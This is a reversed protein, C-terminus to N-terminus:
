TLSQPADSLGQSDHATPPAPEQCANGVKGLLAYRDCRSLDADLDGTSGPFLVVTEDFGAAAALVVMAEPFLPHRHTPDLWFLKASTLNHPNVTEMLLLGGPQLVRRAHSLLRPLATPDIHEIVQVSVIADVTADAQEVLYDLLDAQVVSLGQRRARELMGADSDVGRAPIGHQALMALLEGRGCGLELVNHRDRLYPLYETLLYSVRESTGRFADEFTVYIQDMHSTKGKDHRYGMVVRGSPAMLRLGGPLACFPRRSWQEELSPQDHPSRGPQHSSSAQLAAIASQQELLANNMASLARYVLQALEQVSTSQDPSPTGIPPTAFPALSDLRASGNRNGSAPGVSAPEPENHLSGVACNRNTMPVSTALTARRPRLARLRKDAIDAASDWQWRAEIDARAKRGLRQVLQADRATRRLLEVLHDVSPEAWRHGRYFPVEMKEDVPALGDIEVLLSNSDDMFDLNGSWRTGIVALGSAMAEMQPRGWGEGRSVGVFVDARAMLRPIASPPLQQDIIVIPAVETRSFGLLALQNNVLADTTGAQNDFQGRPFCRLVLSVPSDPSFARAWASMIVDPAKRHSWEFISLFTVGRAEPVDLPVVGPRFRRTDVGGPVVHVPVRVGAKYFTEANFSSPVWVQDLRNCNDVWNVPLSDTEFMTRGITFKAGEVPSLAYGPLHLVVTPNPAIQCTLSAQLQQALAPDDALGELFDRPEDGSSRAAVRYGKSTLGMLFGRAEEGYGSPNLFPAVWAIDDPETGTHPQSQHPRQAGRARGDTPATLVEGTMYKQDADTPQVHADTGTTTVVGTSRRCPVQSRM